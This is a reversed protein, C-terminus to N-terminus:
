VAEKKAIEPITMGQQMLSIQNKLQENERVQELYKEEMNEYLSKGVTNNLLDDYLFKPVSQQEPHVNSIPLYTTGGYFFTFDKNLADCLSELLDTKIAEKSLKVSLNQQSTGLLAALKTITYGENALKKKVEEGTM